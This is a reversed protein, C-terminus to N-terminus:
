AEQWRREGECRVREIKKLASERLRGCTAASCYLRQAVSTVSRNEFYRLRVYAAERASLGADKVTKEVLAAKSRERILRREISEVEARYNDVVIIAAREVPSLFRKERTRLKEYDCTLAVDDYSRRYAGEALTLDIMLTGICRLAYWREKLFQETENM